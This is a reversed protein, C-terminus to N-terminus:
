EYRLAVTPDIKTARRAPLYGAICGVLLLVISVAVFSTRDNPQVGYLLSSLSRTL